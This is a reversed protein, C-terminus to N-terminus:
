PCCLRKEGYHSCLKIRKGPESESAGRVNLGSVLSKPNDLRLEMEKLKKRDITSAQAETDVLTQELTGGIEIGLASCSEEMGVYQAEHASSEEDSRWNM